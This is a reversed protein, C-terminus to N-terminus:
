RKYPALRPCSRSEPNKALMKAVIRDLAAPIEANPAIEDLTPARRSQHMLMTELAHEGRFLPSGTFVEFM